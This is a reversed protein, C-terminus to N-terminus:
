DHKVRGVAQVSELASVGANAASFTARRLRDNVALWDAGLPPAEILIRDLNLADLERLAAYLQRAYDEADEGLNLWVGEFDTPPDRRAIVGSGRRDAAARRVLRTPTQPAYHQPLSGSVRLASSQAVEPTYGLVAALEGVSVAGPRLVRGRGGSLDLITSELGVASDGGDLILDVADGLEDQVHAARTPSVRGFRNASPAAVGAGFARLLAQAQPHSPVRLGVTDQGGTVANLVRESRKLVLTLPGPLFRAALDSVVDPVDRAWDSFQAADALHVILPHDAPRGKSSFVRVLAELNQADAGLGYVTETPFAVLGGGRLM